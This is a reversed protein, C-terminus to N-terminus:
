PSDKRNITHKRAAEVSYAYEVLNAQFETPWQHAIYLTKYLEPSDLFFYYISVGCADAIKKLTDVHIGRKGNEYLSILQQTAEIKKALLGQSYGALMRASKIREGVILLFVSSSQTEM